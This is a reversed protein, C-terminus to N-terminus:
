GKQFAKGLLPARVGGYRFRKYRSSVLMTSPRAQIDLLERLIINKLLRAAEEPDTHAGGAPEPVVVDAVGLEKCDAATLKLAAALEEARQVDRFFISAAREPSIVSLFANEMIRGPIM